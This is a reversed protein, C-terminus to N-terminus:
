QFYTLRLSTRLNRSKRRSRTPSLGKVHGGKLSETHRGDWWIPVHPGPGLRFLKDKLNRNANEVSHLIDLYNRPSVATGTKKSTTARRWPERSYNGVGSFFYTSACSHMKLSTPCFIFTHLFWLPAAARVGLAPPATLCLAGEPDGIPLTESASCWGGGPGWIGDQCRGWRYAPLPGDFAADHM